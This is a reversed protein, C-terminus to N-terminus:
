GRNLWRLMSTDLSPDDSINQRNKKEIYIATNVTELNESGVGRIIATEVSTCFTKQIKFYMTREKSEVTRFQAEDDEKMM